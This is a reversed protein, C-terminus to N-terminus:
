PSVTSTCRSTLMTLKNNLQKPRVQSRPPDHPHSTARRSGDVQEHSSLVSVHLVEQTVDAANHEQRTVAACQVAGAVVIVVMMRIQFVKFIQSEAVKVSKSLITPAQLQATTATIFLTITKCNRRVNLQVHHRVARRTRRVEPTRQGREIQPRSAQTAEQRESTVAQSPLPKQKTVRCFLSDNNRQVNFRNSDLAGTSRVRAGGSRFHASASSTQARSDCPGPADEGHSQAAPEGLCWGCLVYVRIRSTM